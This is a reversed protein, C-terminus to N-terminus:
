PAPIALATGSAFNPKTKVWIAEWPSIQGSTQATTYSYGTAGSKGTGSPGKTFAADLINSSSATSLTSYTSGTKVQVLSWEITSKHPNGIANEGNKYGTAHLPIEFRCSSDLTVPVGQMTVNVAGNLTLIWYAKGSTLPSTITLKTYKQQNNDVEYVVWKRGYTAAPLEDFIQGVQNNSTNLPLGFMTWQNNAIAFTTSTETTTSTNCSVAAPESYLLTGWELGPYGVWPLARAALAYRKGSVPTFNFSANNGTNQIVESVVQQANTVQINDLLFSVNADTGTYRSGTHRYQARLKVPKNAYASLSISKSSFVTEQPGETSSGPIGTGTKSYIDQWSVGGDVSIQVAATQGTKAYGLKSEFQLVSNSAPIYTIPLEVTESQTAPALRYVNTSNSGSGSYVLDYSSDTGDTVNLSTTEANYVGTAAAIEAIYAEYQQAISINNFTYTASSGAPPTASGSITVQEEGTGATQPDIVTVTYTFSNAAGAILVNNITVDYATDAAPKPWDQNAVMNNPRWVLTNEGYGNAVTELTVPVANGGQTMTVTASSFNAGPYSFSWRVPVTQYPNYGKTPWAVFTDRTTPRANGSNGDFVWVANAKNYAAVAPVDGTGMVQTQPYILWRRHGVVTNNDGNDRMQSGVADWGNNGLSLNSSSAADYGDSTYCAWTSPPYHNLQNNASMMLAAQQAKANFTANLTINAPVGVMARFYNIRAVVSNKFDSSTTGPTCSSHSGNWEIPTNLSALYVSNYFARALQRNNSDVSWGSTNTDPVRWAQEPTDVIHHPLLGPYKLAGEQPFSAVNSALHMTAQTNSQQREQCSVLLVSSTAIVISIQRLVGAIKM